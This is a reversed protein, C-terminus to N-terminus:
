FISSHKYVIIKLEKIDEKSVSFIAYPFAYAITNYPSTGKLDVYFTATGSEQLFLEVKKIEYNHVPSYAIAYILCHNQFDIEPPTIGEPCIAQLEEQSCIMRVEEKISEESDHIYSYMLPNSESLIQQMAEKVPKNLTIKKVSEGAIPTGDANVPSECGVLGMMMACIAMCMFLAKTKM